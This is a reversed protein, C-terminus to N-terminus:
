RRARSKEKPLYTLGPDTPHVVTPYKRFEFLIKLHPGSSGVIRGRRPESVGDLANWVVKGGRWASVKYYDRIYQLSM